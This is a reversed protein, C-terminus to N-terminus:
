KSIKGSEEHARVHRLIRDKYGKPIGKLEAMYALFAQATMQEYLSQQQPMYGLVQRFRKGLELIDTGNYLIAGNTRPLNDTLLNMLTSKGAGNAGLIGYIGPEFTFSFGDLATHTGYKKSVNQLQLQM